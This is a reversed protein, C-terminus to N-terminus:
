EIKKGFKFVMVKRESDYSQTMESVEVDPPLTFVHNSVHNCDKSNVNVTFTDETMEYSLYDTKNNFSVEITHKDIFNLFQSKFHKIDAIFKEQAETCAKGMDSFSFSQLMDNATKIMSKIASLGSNTFLETFNKKDM